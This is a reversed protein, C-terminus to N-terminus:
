TAEDTAQPELILFSSAYDPEIHNDSFFAEVTRGVRARAWIDTSRHIRAV